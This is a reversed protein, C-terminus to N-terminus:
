VGVSLSQLLDKLLLLSRDRGAKAQKFSEYREVTASSPFTPAPEFFYTGEGIKISTIKGESFTLTFDDPSEEKLVLSLQALAEGLKM